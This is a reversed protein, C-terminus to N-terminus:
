SGIVAEHGPDPHPQRQRKKGVTTEIERNLNAFASPDVLKRGRREFLKPNSVALMALKAGIRCTAEYFDHVLHDNSQVTDHALEHIMLDLDPVFDEREAALPLGFEGLKHHALNITMESTHPAFAGCLSIARDKIYRLTVRKGILLPSVEGVFEAFAEMELTWEDRAYVKAPTKGNGINTPFLTGAPKIAEARKANEWEGKSMSGGTVVTWNKSAAERNSGVDNMDFSVRDAGFRLDLVTKIAEDSCRPDDAAARVWNATADNKDIMDQTHNLLEVYIAKLYAPKVNDRDVNLPVKQGVSVHYKANLEVVPIGMEYLHATEGELLEYVSVTTKRETRRLNGETDSKVTELTTEWERLPKRNPIEEGNFFTTVSPILMKADACMEDYEALTLRMHGKFESGVMRKRKDTRTRGDGNFSVEGTTTSIMAETCLALVYKEGVNFAGSKTPDGKKYSEGFMTYADSLDRFGEPSDDTVTLTSQGNVPRTLKMDIRTVNEDKSNQFLERIALYKGRRELVKRLGDMDVDIWNKRGKM